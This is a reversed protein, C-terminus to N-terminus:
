RYYGFSVGVSMTLQNSFQTDWFLHNSFTSSIKKGYRTEGFFSLFYGETRIRYEIGAGVNVMNTIVRGLLPDESVSYNIHERGDYFGHMQYAGHDLGALLYPRFAAEPNIFYGPYFNAAVATRVEDVTHPVNSTSYYFGQRFKLVLAKAGVVVGFSGGFTNVKMQNIQPINSVVVFSKQGFSSELGVQYDALFRAFRQAAVEQTAGVITMILFMSLVKDKCKLAVLFNVFRVPMAIIILFAILMMKIIFDTIENRHLTIM